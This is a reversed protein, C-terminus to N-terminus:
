GQANQRYIQPSVGFREKFKRAFYNPDDFGLTYAISSIREDSVLLMRAATVM